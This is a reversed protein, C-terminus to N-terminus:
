HEYVQGTREGMGMREEGRQAQVAAKRGKLVAAIWGLREKSRLSYSTLLYCDQFPLSIEEIQMIKKTGKETKM